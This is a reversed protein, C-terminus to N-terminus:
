WGTMDAGGVWAHWTSRYWYHIYCLSVVQFTETFIKAVTSVHVRSSTPGDQLALPPSAFAARGPRAATRTHRHTFGM